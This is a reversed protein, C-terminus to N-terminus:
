INTGRVEVSQKKAEILQCIKNAADRISTIEDYYDLPMLVKYKKEISTISEIIDMSQIGLEKFELDEDISSIPVNAFKSLKKKFLKIIKESNGNEM